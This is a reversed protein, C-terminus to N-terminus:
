PRERTGLVALLRHMRQVGQYTPDPNARRVEPPLLERLAGVDALVACLEREAPPHDQEWAAFAELGRARRRLLQQMTLANM